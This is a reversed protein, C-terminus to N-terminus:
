QERKKPMSGRRIILAERIKRATTNREKANIRTKWHIQHQTEQVHHAIASFESKGMRTHCKHKKLREKGTRATEGVYIQECDAGGIAYVVGPQSDAPLTDKARSMMM